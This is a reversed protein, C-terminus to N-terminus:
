MCARVTDYRPFVFSRGDDGKPEGYGLYACRSTQVALDLASKYQELAQAAKDFSRDGILTAIQEYYQSHRKKLEVEAKNFLPFATQDPKSPGPPRLDNLEWPLGAARYAEVAAEVGKAADALEAADADSPNEVRAGLARIEKNDADFQNDSLEERAEETASIKPKDSGCGCGVCFLATTSLFAAAACRISLGKM